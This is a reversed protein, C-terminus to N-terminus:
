GCHKQRQVNASGINTADQWNVVVDYIERWMAAFVTDIVVQRDVKKEKAIRRAEDYNELSFERYFERENEKIEEPTFNRRPKPVTSACACCLVLLTALYRM